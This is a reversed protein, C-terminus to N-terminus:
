HTSAHKTTMANHYNDQTECDSFLGLFFPKYPASKKVQVRAGVSFLCKAVFGYFYNPIEDTSSLTKVEALHNWGTALM